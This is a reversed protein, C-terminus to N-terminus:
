FLVTKVGSKALYLVTYQRISIECYKCKNQQTNYNKSDLKARVLYPQQGELTTMM